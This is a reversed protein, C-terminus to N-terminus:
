RPWQLEYLKTYHISYSTIVFGSLKTFLKASSEAPSSSSNRSTTSSDYLKTYHISYSTIVHGAPSVNGSYTMGRSGQLVGCLDGLIDGFLNPTVVVDIRAAEQLLWYAAYDVDIM